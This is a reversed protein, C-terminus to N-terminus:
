WAFGARLMVTDPPEFTDTPDVVYFVEREFVYGVEFFATFGRPGTWELGGSFRIDNIDIRDNTGDAREITWAGGGYEGALYWWVEYRGVTMLYASLRPQPFFIDFRVQPTPTWLIGGAPLLKIKNRDLYMVGFKFTVTPTLRAVGLALGQIRLSDSNLTDFDTYVGVRVGLEAGIQLAPDTAYQFDLYASYAKSPLDAPIGQPGDWLHLAFAPSIYLPQNTTLFNPWTFTLGFEIDNIDLDTPDDGGELWTERFRVDQIFRMSQSFDWTEGMGQPFVYQPTAAPAGAAPPGYTPFSGPQTVVPPTGPQSFVGTTNSPPTTSWFQYASAGNSSYPDFPAPSFSGGTYPNVPAAAAGAAAPAPATIIGSPASPGVPTAAPTRPFQINQALALPACCSWALAASCLALGPWELQRPPRFV